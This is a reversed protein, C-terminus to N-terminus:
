RRAPGDETIGDALLDTKFYNGTGANAGEKGAGSLQVETDAQASARRRMHVKTLSLVVDAVLLVALFGITSALWAALENEGQRWKRHFLVIGIYVNALALAITLRGWNHHLINWITRSKPLPAGPKSSPQPRLFLAALVQIGLLPILIIGIVRHSSGLDESGAPYNGGFRSLSIAIGAVFFVVGLLQCTSHAWFWVAKPGLMATPYFSRHRVIVIGTPLFFVFALAMLVSHAVVWERLDSEVVDVRGSEPDLVFSGSADHKQGLVDSSRHVAWNMDLAGSGKLAPPVKSQLLQRRVSADDVGGLVAESPVMRGPEEAFAVSVYGPSESEVAWHAMAGADSDQSTSNAQSGTCVNPPPTPSDSRWTFHVTVGGFTQRCQYGLQSLPCTSDEQEPVDKVAPAGPAAPAAPDAPVPPAGVAPPDEEGSSQCECASSVPLRLNAYQYAGLAGDAFTVKTDIADPLAQCPVSFTTRIDSAQENSLLRNLCPDTADRFRGATTTLLWQVAGPLEVEFDFTQGPCVETVAQRQEAESGSLVTFTVDSSAVPDGHGKYGQTPHMACAEGDANELIRDVFYRPYAAAVVALMFTLLTKM